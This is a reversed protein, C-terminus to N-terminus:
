LKYRVNLKFVSGPNYTKFIKEDAGHSMTVM